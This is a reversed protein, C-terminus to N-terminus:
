KKNLKFSDTVIYEEGPKGEKINVQLSDPVRGNNIFITYVGNGTGIVGIGSVEMEWTIFHKKEDLDPQKFRNVKINLQVGSTKVKSRSLVNAENKWKYEIWAEKIDVIDSSSSDLYYEQIFFGDKKSSEITSSAQPNVTNVEANCSFLFFM